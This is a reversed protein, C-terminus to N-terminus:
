LLTDNTPVGVAALFLYNKKDKLFSFFVKWKNQFPTKKELFTLIIIIVLKKVSKNFM